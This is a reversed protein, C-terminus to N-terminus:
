RERGLLEAALRERARAYRMRATGPRIGLVHAAEALTLGEWHVLGVLERDREPLARVAARVRLVDDSPGTPADIALQERLRDALATRRRGSRRHTALVRRAVGFMWMRAETPDDPLSARRRWLTMLTDGVLDAADARVDVRREFYALLTRAEREVLAGVWANTRLWGAPLEQYPPNTLDVNMRTIGGGFAVVGGAVLAGVLGFVVWRRRPPSRLARAMREIEDVASPAPNVEAARALLDDLDNESTM